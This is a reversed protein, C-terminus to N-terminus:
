DEARGLEDEWAGQFLEASLNSATQYKIPQMANTTMGPAPEQKNL